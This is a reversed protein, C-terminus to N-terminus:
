LKRMLIRQISHDPGKELVLQARWKTQMINERLNVGNITDWIMSATSIAEEASLEAYTRFYSGPDRFATQQLMQFREVFWKKIWEEKADVYISFDLFDSVYLPKEQEIKSDRHAQLINLGELILIEPSRVEISKGPIIDYRLHSYVPSRVLPEGSKIRYLFDTLARLDYSEPFGKRRMLNRRELVSNPHLFGDTTVLDVRPNGPLRELLAKLLRSTTSKGVAVSGTVGIIYPVKRGTEDLFQNRANFLELRASVYLDILRSIPLYVTEVEEMSIVDNLSRAAELDSMSYEVSFNKRKKAWHERDFALYPSSISRSTADNM